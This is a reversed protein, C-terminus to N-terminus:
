EDFAKAMDRLRGRREAARQARYNMELALYTVPLALGLLLASGVNLPLNPSSPREPVVGPDIVTLREGRYGNQAHAERLRAEAGTLAAQAAKRSAALQDRHTTRAALMKDQQEAQRDVAEIRKRVEQLRAQAEAQQRGIEAAEAGTAWRAREADDTVELETAVAQRALDEQLREAAEMAAQLGELPESSLVQSWTNDIKELRARADAEAQEVGQLLDRDDENVMSRNLDVTSDALFRALAQATRADPLTAAIELIRTNRVMGVKLVKKKLSEIPRGGLIRRLGFRDVAKQFLSDSTAFHEYTRLSELYIPSVAISGRPDSGAPPEIVIRATATYQRPAALSAALALLVAIGCSAAILRWRMRLYSIYRFADAIETM